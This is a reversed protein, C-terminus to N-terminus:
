NGILKDRTDIIMRRMSKFIFYAFGKIPNLGNKVSIKKYEWFGKYPGIGSHSMGGVRQESYPKNIIKIKSSNKHVRQLLDIDSAIRYTLDYMGLEVIIDKSFFCASHLFGPNGYYMNRWPSASIYGIEDDSDNIIVTDGYLLDFKEEEYVSAVRSLVSPSYKDDSNIQGIIKGLSAKIGKNLADYMGKDSESVWYDISNEYKKIIDVTGDSSGGDIILYEFDSYDQSLVSNITKELYKESNFTVTIISIKPKKM